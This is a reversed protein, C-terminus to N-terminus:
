IVGRLFHISVAHALFAAQVAPLQSACSAKLIGKGSSSPAPLSALDSIPWSLKPFNMASPRFTLSPARPDALSGEQPRQLTKNAGM